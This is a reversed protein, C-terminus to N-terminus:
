SIENQLSGLACSVWVPDAGKGEVRTWRWYAGEGGVEWRVQEGVEEGKLLVAFGTSLDDTGSATMLLAVCYRREVVETRGWGGGEGVVEALDLYHIGGEAEGM